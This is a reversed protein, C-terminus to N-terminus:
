LAVSNRHGFIYVMGPPPENVSLLAKQPLATPFSPVMVREVRSEIVWVVLISRTERETRTDQASTPVVPVGTFRLM